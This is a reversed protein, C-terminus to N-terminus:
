PSPFGPCPRRRVVVEIAISPAKRRFGIKRWDPSAKVPLRCALRPAYGHVQKKQPRHGGPRGLGERFRRGASVLSFFFFLFSFFGDALAACSPFASFSIWPVVVTKKFASSAPGRGGAGPLRAPGVGISPSRGPKLGGARFFFLGARGAAGGGPLTRCL